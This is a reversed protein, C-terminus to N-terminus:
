CRVTSDPRAPPSLRIMLSRAADTTARASTAASGTTRVVALESADTRGGAKVFGHPLATMADGHRRLMEGGPGRPCGSFYVDHHDAGILRQSLGISPPVLFLEGTQGDM